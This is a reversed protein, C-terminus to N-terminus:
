AENSSGILVAKARRSKLTGNGATTIELSIHWWGPTDFFGEEVLWSYSGAPADILGCEKTYVVGDPKKFHLYAANVGGPQYNSLAQVYFGHEGVRAFPEM